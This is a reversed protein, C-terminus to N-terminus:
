LLHTTWPLEDSSYHLAPSCREPHVCGMISSKNEAGAKGAGEYM